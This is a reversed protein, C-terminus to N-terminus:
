CTFVDGVEGETPGVMMTWRSPLAEQVTVVAGVEETETVGTDRGKDSGKAAWTTEVTKRTRM